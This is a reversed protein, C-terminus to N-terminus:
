QIHLLQFSIVEMWLDLNGASLEQMVIVGFIMVCQEGYVVLVFRWEEQLMLEMLWVYKEMKAILKQLRDYLFMLCFQVDNVLTVYLVLMMMNDVTMFGWDMIHVSFCHSKMELATYIM